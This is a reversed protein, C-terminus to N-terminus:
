NHRHFKTTSIRIMCKCFYIWSTFEGKDGRWIVYHTDFRFSDHVDKIGAQRYNFEM